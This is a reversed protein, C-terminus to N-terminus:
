DMNQLLQKHKMANPVSHRLSLHQICRRLQTPLSKSIISQIAIPMYPPIQQVLLCDCQGHFSNLYEDWLMTVVNIVIQLNSNGKSQFKNLILIAISVNLNEM